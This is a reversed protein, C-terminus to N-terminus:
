KLELTKKLVAELLIDPYPYVTDLNVLLFDGRLEGM